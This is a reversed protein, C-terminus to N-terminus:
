YIKRSSKLIRKYCYRYLKTLENISIFIEMNNKEDEKQFTQRIELSKVM